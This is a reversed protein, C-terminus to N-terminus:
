VNHTHSNKWLSLKKLKLAPKEVFRWSLYALFVTIVFTIINFLAFNMKNDALYVVAQQIPFAYLYIGYSIDGVHTELWESLAPMPVYVLFMVMYPVLLAHLVQFSPTQFASWWLGAACFFYIYNFSIRERLLYILSGAFFFLWFKSSHILAMSYRSFDELHWLNILKINLMALICFIVILFWVRHLRLLFIAMLMLYATFEIPLTWISGNVARGWVNHEFVGSLHYQLDYLYINRLYNLTMPDAFYEAFSKTTLLPGLIFDAFLVVVILGPFIRLSRNKLYNLASNSRQLSATVLFGSIVFFISVAFEGFNTGGTLVGLPEESPFNLLAYSHSFLVLSAAIIRLLTFNNHPTNIDISLNQM